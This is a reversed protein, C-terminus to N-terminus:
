RCPAQAGLGAYGYNMFSFGSRDLYRSILQYYQKSVTRRTFVSADFFSQYMSVFKMAIEKTAHQNQTTSLRIENYIKSDAM